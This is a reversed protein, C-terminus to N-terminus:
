IDDNHIGIKYNGPFFDVLVNNVSLKRFKLYM